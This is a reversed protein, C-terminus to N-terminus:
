LCPACRLVNFTRTLLCCTTGGVYNFAAVTNVGTPEISSSDVEVLGAGAPVFDTDVGNILEVLIQRGDALPPTNPASFDFSFSGGGNNTLPLSQIGPITSLRRRTMQPELPVLEIPFTGIFVDGATPPTVTLEVNPGASVLTIVPLGEAGAGHTTLTSGGTSPKAGQALATNSEQESHQTAERGANM